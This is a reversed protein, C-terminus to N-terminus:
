FPWPLGDAGITMSPSPDPPVPPADESESPDPFEPGDPPLSPDVWLNSPDSVEPPVPDETEPPLSPLPKCVTCYNHYPDTVTDSYASVPYMGEPIVDGRLDRPLTFQEDPLFLTNIPAHRNINLLAKQTRLQCNPGAVHNSITCIDIVTHVNCRTKPVDDRDLLGVAVRGGRPDLRCADSVPLGSDICYTYEVLGDPVYFEKRELGEHAQEMVQRWMHIAPNSTYYSMNRGIPYGFWCVATYYPTFGAFWRDKNDTTTGTKGAVPMDVDKFNANGGTGSAVANLLCTRMYFASKAKMAQVSDPRNDLVESGENDVVLTYTRTEHRIGNDSAIATYAETMDRVTVGDTLAGLALPSAGIDSLTQTGVKKGEVLTTIGMKETAFRFSQPYTIMEMIQVSVANKSRTVASVVGIRGDYGAPTNRPWGRDEVNLSPMDDIPSYPTILGLDFAPSYVAVPKFSSGPQRKMMTANNRILDGTKERGGIMAKIQGTYQDVVMMASEPPEDDPTSPWCSPDSWVGDMIKQMNLDVCSYIHYGGSYIFDTAIESSYGYQEMLDNKVDVLVQDVYWSRLSATGVGGRRAYVLPQYKAINYEHRTIIQQNYMESLITEQRRKANNPHTFPNYYSPNNTIGAILACEALTLEDLTKGFYTEAATVVGSCNNGLPIINLYEEIILEKGEQGPYKREFALARFIENLKRSVTVDKDQTLIRILQQTITSGGFQKGGTLMSVFAGGTRKWDVGEHQWFRKDEIAVIADVLASPIEDYAARVRNDSSSLTEIEVWEEPNDPDAAYIHSSLNLAFTELNVETDVDLYRTIYIAGFVGVITGTLLTILLVTLLIRGAVGMVAGFMRSFGRLGSRIDSNFIKRAGKRVTRGVAIFFFKVNLLVSKLKDM